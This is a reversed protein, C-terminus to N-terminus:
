VGPFNECFVRTASIHLPYKKNFLGALGTTGAIVNRKIEIYEDNTVYIMDSILVRKFLSVSSSDLAVGV